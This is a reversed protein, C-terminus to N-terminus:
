ECDICDLAVNFGYMYMYTYITTGVKLPSLCLPVKQGGIIKNPSRHGKKKQCPFTINSLSRKNHKLLCWTVIQQTSKENCELSFLFTLIIDIEWRETIFLVNSISIKQGGINKGLQRWQDCFKLAFHSKLTCSPTIIDKKKVQM